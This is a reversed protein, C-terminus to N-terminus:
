SKETKKPVRLEFSEVREFVLKPRVTKIVPDIALSNQFFDREYELTVLPFVLPGAKTKGDIKGPDAETAALRANEIVDRALDTDDPIVLCTWNKLENAGVIPSIATQSAADADKWGERSLTSLIRTRSMVLFSQLIDFNFALYRKLNIIGMTQLVAVPHSVSDSIFKLIFRLDETTTSLDVGQRQRQRLYSFHNRVMKSIQEDGVTISGNRM